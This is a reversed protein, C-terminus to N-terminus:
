GEDRSRGTLPVFRVALLKERRPEHHARRTIRWIWQARPGSELPIVLSASVALQDMLPAPVRHAAATVVIGDFPAAEPWGDAGDAVRLSAVYGAARLAAAALHSLPEIIEISYVEAGLECLVATQYGSGTGVELIRDGPEVSLYETMSAVVFPQSITQECGIAFAADEYARDRLDAPVFLHRPVGAIADAVRPDVGESALADALARAEHRWERAPDDM